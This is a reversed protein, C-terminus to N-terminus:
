RVNLSPIIEYCLINYINIMNKNKKDHLCQINPGHSHCKVAEDKSHHSNKKTTKFTEGSHILQDEMSVLAKKENVTDM